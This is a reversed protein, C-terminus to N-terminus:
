AAEEMRDPEVDDDDEDGFTWENAAKMEEWWACLDAAAWSRVQRNLYQFAELHAKATHYADTWAAPGDDGALLMENDPLDWSNAITDRDLTRNFSNRCASSFGDPAITAGLSGYTYIKWEMGFDNKLDEQLDDIMFSLEDNICDYYAQMEEDNAFDPFGNGTLRANHYMQRYEEECAGLLEETLKKFAIERLNM